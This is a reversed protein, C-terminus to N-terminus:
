PKCLCEMAVDEHEVEYDDVLKLLANFHDEVSVVNNGAFSQLQKKYESTPKDNPHNPITIFSLPDYVISIFVVCPNAAKM